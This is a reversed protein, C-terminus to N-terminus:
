AERCCRVNQRRTSEFACFIKLYSTNLAKDRKRKLQRVIDRSM